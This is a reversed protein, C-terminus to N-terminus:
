LIFGGPWSSAQQFGIDLQPQLCAGHSAQPLLTSLSPHLSLLATGFSASSQKPSKQRGKTGRFSFLPSQQNFTHARAPQLPLILPLPPAPVPAAPVASVPVFLVHTCLCQTGVGWPFPTVWLYRNWENVQKERRKQLCFVMASWVEGRGARRTGGASSWCM